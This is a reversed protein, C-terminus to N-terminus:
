IRAAEEAAKMIAPLQTQDIQVKARVWPGVLHDPTLELTVEVHGRGDGVFELQVNNEYLTSWSCSRDLNRYLSELDAALRSFASAVADTEFDGFFGHDDIWSVRVGLFEPYAGRSVRMDLHSTESGVRIDVSMSWELYAYSNTSTTSQEAIACIM